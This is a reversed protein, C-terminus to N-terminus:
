DTLRKRLTRVSVACVLVTGFTLVGMFALIPMHPVGPIMTTRLAESVYVLPNVLVLWQIWGVARLSSWPYYVCGLMTIPVLLVTFILSLKRPEVMTGFLLGLGSMLLAALVLVGFAAPWDAGHINPAQGPAHVFLVCPLVVVGAAIGQLAGTLIKSLGLMWLPIPALVRDEIERTYSLEMVLPTTVAMISQMMVASAILGPVLITAFSTGGVSSASGGTGQAKPMVYAFVFVFLLPQTISRLVFAVLDRRIVRLDRAILARFPRRTLRLVGTGISPAPGAPRLVEATM